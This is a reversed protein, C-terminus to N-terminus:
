RCPGACREAPEAGLGAHSRRAGRDGRRGVGSPPTPDFTMWGYKDGMWAEVWSHADRQRVTFMGSLRNRPMCSAVWALRGGVSIRQGGAEIISPPCYGSEPASLARWLEKGTNKDFAVAVSGEGGVFTDSAQEVEFHYVGAGNQTVKAGARRLAAGLREDEDVGLLRRARVARRHGERGVDLAAADSFM